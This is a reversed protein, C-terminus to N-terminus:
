IIINKLRQNGAILKGRRGRHGYQTKGIENISGSTSSTTAWERAPGLRAASGFGNQFQANKRTQRERLM